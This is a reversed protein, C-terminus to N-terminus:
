DMGGVGWGVEQLDARINDEWKLRSGTYGRREGMREAHGAWGVRKSKIARIIDPSSYLGNLEENPLKRWEGTVKDREPGFIRRLVRTALVRLRPEQRLILSWSECESLVPLIITEYM